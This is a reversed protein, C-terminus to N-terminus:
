FKMFLHQCTFISMKPWTNSSTVSKAFVL